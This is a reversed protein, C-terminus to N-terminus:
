SIKGVHDKCLRIHNAEYLPVRFASSWVRREEVRQKTELQANSLVSFSSM